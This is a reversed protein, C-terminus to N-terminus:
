FNLVISLGEQPWSNFVVDLEVSDDWDNWARGGWLIDIYPLCSPLSCQPVHSTSCSSSFKGQQAFLMAANVRLQGTM